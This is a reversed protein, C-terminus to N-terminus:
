PSFNQFHTNVKPQWELQKPELCHVREVLACSPAIRIFSNIAQRMTHRM